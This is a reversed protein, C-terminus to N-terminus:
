KIGQSVLFLLIGAAVSANYSIDCSRQPLTILVGEKQVSKAIGIAENGIVLCGPRQYNIKTADKGNGVVAMYLNYGAQKLDLVAKNISSSVYIDLYEALGASAKFVAPTLLAGGKKCLVM